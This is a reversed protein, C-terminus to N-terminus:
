INWPETVEIFGTDEEHDYPDYDQGEDEVAKGFREYM